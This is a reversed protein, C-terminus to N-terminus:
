MRQTDTFNDPLFSNRAKMITPYSSLSGAEKELRQPWVLRGVRTKGCNGHQHFTGSGHRSCIWRTQLANSYWENSKKRFRQRYRRVTFPSKTHQFDIEYGLKFTDQNPLSLPMIWSTLWLRSLRNVDTNIFFAADPVEKIFEIEKPILLSHTLYM